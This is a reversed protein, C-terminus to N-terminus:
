PDEHHNPFLFIHKKSEAALSILGLRRSSLTQEDMMISLLQGNAALDFRLSRDSLIKKGWFFSRSQLIAGFGLSTMLVEDLLLKHADSFKTKESDYNSFNHFFVCMVRFNCVFKVKEDEMKINGGDDEDDEEEQRQTSTNKNKTELSFLFLCFCSVFFHGM